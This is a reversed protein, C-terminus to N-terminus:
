EGFKTHVADLIRIALEETVGPVGMLEGASAHYLAKADPYGAAALAAALAEDLGEVPLEELLTSVPAAPAAAEDGPAMDPLDLGM